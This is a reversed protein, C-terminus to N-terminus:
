VHMATWLKIPAVEVYDEHEITAPRSLRSPSEAERDEAVMLVRGTKSLQRIYDQTAKVKLHTCWRNKNTPLERGSEAAKKIPAKLKLLSVGLQCALDDVYELTEKFELGADVFVPIVKRGLAKLSL